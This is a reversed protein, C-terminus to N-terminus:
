FIPEEDDDYDGGGGFDLTNEMIVKKGEEKSSSLSFVGADARTHTEACPPNPPNSVGNGMHVHAHCAGPTKPFDGNLGVLGVSVKGLATLGSFTYLTKGNSIRPEAMACLLSLQRRYRSMAKGIRRGSYFQSTKADAEDGMRAVIRASLDSSSGEFRWGNDSLVAWVEKAVADNLIPLLSKSGEAAGLAAVTEQEMGIARGIKVSFEGYDPHRRNVSSDVPASDALAAAVTRAMWTLYQDRNEAIERSLAIDESTSRNLALPVTILRDAMGGNGETTFLPNNSTLIMHARARIISVGATTYLTRRKTQGDTAATQLADSAWGVKTDFNDFVELKGDNITSWFNDQGKDGNEITQVSLDPKGNLRIGLIEKIGKAMRTKGSGAGGTILLPPKTAHSAFLNLTWLRVNMLGHADSFSAGLFLRATAFPDVGGGDCLKWPALTKGRLFLMGDTGNQVMEAKGPTIRCMMTDGSSIYVADGRREWSHGPVTGRSYEPDMAIQKVLGLTRGLDGKHPDVDEFGAAAGVFSFFEDSMICMLRCGQPDRDLYMCSGFDRQEDHWFFSGRMLLWIAASWAKCRMPVGRPLAGDPQCASVAAIMRSRMEVASMGFDFSIRVSKGGGVDFDIDYREPRGASDTAAKGFRGIAPREAMDMAGNDTFEWEDPWPAASKVADRFAAADAALGKAKRLEVWDTVDKATEGDVPPMVMLRVPGAYGAAKLKQMVSWAHRQGKLHPREKGTKEDTKTAPDNDAIVLIGGAGRFWDPWEAPWGDAWKGAGGSNCTATFGLREVTHVDKEGEVIVIQRKAAAAAAVAPLRYPLRAIGREKLGYGWGGRASPDPAQHMFTKKGNADVFRAVRYQAKGSVGCYEYSEVFTLSRKRKPADRRTGLANREAAGGDNRGTGDADRRRTEGGDAFLDSMKLGMAEVVAAASCGAHCHLLIKGGRESVSLSPNSDGHAPCRAIWGSGSREVGDLRSILEEATMKGLEVADARRRREGTM